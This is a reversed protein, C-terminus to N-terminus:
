FVTRDLLPVAAHDARIGHMRMHGVSVLVYPLPYVKKIVVSDGASNWGCMDSFEPNSFIEYAKKLFGPITQGLDDKSMKVSMSVCSSAIPARSRPGTSHCKHPEV